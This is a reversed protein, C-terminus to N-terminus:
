QEAEEFIRKRLAIIVLSVFIAFAYTPLLNQFTQFNLDLGKLKNTISQPIISDYPVIIGLILGTQELYRFTNFYKRGNIDEFSLKQQKTRLFTNFNNELEPADNTFELFSKQIDENTKTNIFFENFVPHAFIGKGVNSIFIEQDKYKRSEILIDVIPRIDIELNFVGLAKNELSVSLSLNVEIRNMRKNVFPLSWSIFENTSNEFFKNYNPIEEIIKRSTNANVYYGNTQNAILGLLDDNTKDNVGYLLVTSKALGNEKSITKALTINDLIGTNPFGDTIGIMIKQNREYGDNGLIKLGSVIGESIDSLGGLELRKIFNIADLKIEDTAVVLNQSFYNIKDSFAIITFRDSTSFSDVIKSTSNKISEFQTQNLSGSVDIAIVIDKSGTLGSEYWPDTKFDYSKSLKTYPYTLLFGDSSGFQMYSIDSRDISKWLDVLSSTKNIEDLLNTPVHKYPSEPETSNSLYSKQYSEDFVSPSFTIAAVDKSITNNYIEDYGLGPISDEFAKNHYYAEKNEPRIKFLLSSKLYNKLLTGLEEYEKIKTNLKDQVIISLNEVSEFAETEITPNLKIKPQSYALYTFTGGAGISIILFIAIVYIKM